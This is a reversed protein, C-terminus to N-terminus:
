RRGVTTGGNKAGSIVIEAKRPADRMIKDSVFVEGGVADLVAWLMLGMSRTEAIHKAQEARLAKAALMLPQYVDAAIISAQDDTLFANNLLTDAIEKPTPLEM